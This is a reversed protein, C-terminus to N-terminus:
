QEEVGRGEDMAGGGEESDCPNANAGLNSVRTLGAMRWCGVLGVVVGWVSRQACCRVEIRPRLERERCRSRAVVNVRSIYLGNLNAIRGQSSESDYVEGRDSRVTMCQRAKEKDPLHMEERDEAEGRQGRGM